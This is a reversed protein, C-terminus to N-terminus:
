RVLTPYEVRNFTLAPVGYNGADGFDCVLSASPGDITITRVEVVTPPLQAPASTDDSTYKRGTLIWPILTGRTLKLAESLIGAVNDVEIATDPSSAQDSEDAPKLRLPCALWEVEVGGDEPADAELTAQLPVYDNVFRLRGFAPHYLELADLVARGDPAISAAETMADAFTVGNRTLPM